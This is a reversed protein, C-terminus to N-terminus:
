TGYAPEDPPQPPQTHLVLGEMPDVEMREGKREFVLDDGSYLLRGAQLTACTASALEYGERGDPLDLQFLAPTLALHYLPDSDETAAEITTFSALRIETGSHRIYRLHWDGSSGWVVGEIADKEIYWVVSRGDLVARIVDEFSDVAPLRASSFM